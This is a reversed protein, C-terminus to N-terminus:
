DAEGLGGRGRFFLYIARMRFGPVTTSKGPHAWSDQLDPLSTSTRISRHRTSSDDLVSREFLRTRLMAMFFIMLFAHATVIVNYLQHNGSLFFSQRPESISATCSCVHRYGVRWFFFCGFGFLPNWYRPSKYFVVVPFVLFLGFEHFRRFPDLIFFLLPSLRAQDGPTQLNRM